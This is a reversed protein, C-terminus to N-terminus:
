RCVASPFEIFTMRVVTQGSDNVAYAASDAGGFPEVIAISGLPTPGGAGFEVAHPNGLAGESYGVIRGAENIAFASSRGGGNLVGLDTATGNQWLFAEELANASQRHGVVQGANNIGFADSNAGVGLDRISGDAEWQVARFGRVEGGSSIGVVQGRDNLGRALTTNGFTDLATVRYLSVAEAPAGSLAVAALAVVGVALTRVFTM